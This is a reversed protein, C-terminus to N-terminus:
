FVSKEKGNRELTTRLTEYLVSMTKIPNAFSRKEKNQFDSLPPFCKFDFDPLASHLFFPFWKDNRVLYVARYWQFYM